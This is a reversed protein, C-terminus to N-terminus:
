FFSAFLIFIFLAETLFSIGFYKEIIPSYFSLILTSFLINVFFAKRQNLIKKKQNIITKLM